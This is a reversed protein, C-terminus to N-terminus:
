PGLTRRFNLRIKRNPPKPRPEVGDEAEELNRQEASPSAALADQEPEKLPAEYGLVRKLFELAAEFGKRGTFYNFHDSQVEHPTLGVYREPASSSREVVCDHPEGRFVRGTLWEIRSEHPGKGGIALIPLRCALQEANMREKERLDNIFTARSEGTGIAAPPKLDEVGPMRGGYAAVLALVDSACMFGGAQGARVATVGLGLLKAPKEALPTGKHPTGFTVCGVLQQKWRAPGQRYLRMAVERALLGGRSHGVFALLTTSNGDFLYDIDELLANANVSIAALTDHPFALLLYRRAFEPNGELGVVLEDFLGVDISMLGHLFVIVGTAESVAAQNAQSTKPLKRGGTRRDRLNKVIDDAIQSEVRGRRIGLGVLWKSAVYAGKWGVVAELSGPRLVLVADDAVIEVEGDPTEPLVLVGRLTEKREDRQWVDRLVGLAAFLHVLDGAGDLAALKEEMAPVSPSDASGIEGFIVEDWAKEIASLDHLLRTERFFRLDDIRLTGAALGALLSLADPVVCIRRVVSCEYVTELWVVRGKKIELGDEARSGAPPVDGPM